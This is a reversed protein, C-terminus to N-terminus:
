IFDAGRELDNTLIDSQAELWRGSVSGLEVVASDKGHCIGAWICVLRLKEYCIGLLRMKVALVCNEALYAISCGDVLETASMSLDDIARIRRQIGHFADLHVCLISRQVLDLQCM